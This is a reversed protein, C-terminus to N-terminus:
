WVNVCVYIILPMMCIVITLFSFDKVVFCVTAGFLRQISMNLHITM